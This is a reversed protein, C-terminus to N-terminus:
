EGKLINTVEKKNVKEEELLVLAKNIRRKLEELEIEEKDWGKLYYIGTIVILLSVMGLIFSLVQKNVYIGISLLVMSSIILLLTIFINRTKKNM